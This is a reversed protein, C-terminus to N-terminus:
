GVLGCCHADLFSQVVANQKDNIISMSRNDYMFACLAVFALTLDEHNDLESEPLHTYDMIRRKAAPMFVTRILEDDEELEVAAYQKVTSLTVDSIKM